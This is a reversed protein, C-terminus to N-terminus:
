NGFSQLYKENADWFEQETSCFTHTNSNKTTLVFWKYDTQAPNAAAQISSIHPSCIPGPPLGANLYTNYPGPTNTDAVTLPSGDWNDLGITYIVTSCFQLYMYARLRNYIVSSVLPKESAVATEKEIMSAIKVVDCLDLGRSEAYALNLGKIEREFQTLLVRVVYEADAEKPIWYTKPYLYGELSNYDAPTDPNSFISELFPYDEVYKRANRAEEVFQQAPIGCVDQVLRATQDLTYGEPITLKNSDVSPNPGDLLMDIVADDTMGTTFYYQGPQLRSEVGRAVVANVFSSEKSIVGKKRLEKAIESTTSGEPIFVDVQTIATPPKESFLGLSQILKFGGFVLLSFVALAVVSVIISRVPQSRRKGGDMGYGIYNVSKRAGVDQRSRSKGSGSRYPRSGRSSISRFQIEDTGSDELKQERSSNFLRQPMSVKQRPMDPKQQAMDAKQRSMDPKKRPFESQSSLAEGQQGSTEGRQSSTEGPQMSIESPQSSTESGTLSPINRPFRSPKNSTSHKGNYDAM